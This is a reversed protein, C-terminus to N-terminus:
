NAGIQISQNGFSGDLLRRGNYETGAIVRQYEAVLGELETQLGTRISDTVTESAAELAIERMRQVIELQTSLASDAIQIMSQAESVQRNAQTLGRIQSDLRVSSVYAAADDRPSNVRKGSSLRELARFAHPEDGLAKSVDHARESQSNTSENCELGRKRVGKM